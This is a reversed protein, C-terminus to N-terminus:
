KMLKELSSSEAKHRRTNIDLRHKRMYYIEKQTLHYIDNISIQGDFIDLTEVVFKFFGSIM